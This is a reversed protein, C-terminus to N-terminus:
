IGEVINIALPYYVIVGGIRGHAPVIFELGREQANFQEYASPLELTLVEPDRRYCVMVAVNGSGTAPSVVSELENLWEVSVDPHTEQFAKLVTQGDVTNLRKNAVLQYRTLPLLLANPLEVGKTLSVVSSYADNMDQLIEEANKDAWPINGTTAGAGVVSTPVNPQYILGTLGAWKAVNPKAFFAIQNVITEYSKRTANAKRTELKKGTLASTRIEQINYGYSGGVSRVPTTFEKGKVDSRPLDDAYNTIIKMMGVTDYQEYTISTAGAGAETSVPIMEKAKFQGYKIDYSGTKVYDLEREFFIKENDDLNVAQRVGNEKIMM